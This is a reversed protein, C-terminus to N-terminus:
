RLVCAARNGCVVAPRRSAHGEDSISEAVERVRHLLVHHLVRHSQMLHLLNLRLLKLVEPPHLLGLRNHLLAVLVFHRMREDLLLLLHRSSPELIELLRDLLWGSLKDLLLVSPVIFSWDDLLVCSMLLRRLSHLLLANQRLQTLLLELLLLKLELLKLKLLLRTIGLLVNLWVILMQRLLLRVLPLHRNSSRLLIWALTHSVDSMQRWSLGVTRSWHLCLCLCLCMRLPDRLPHHLLLIKLLLFLLLLQLHLHLRLLLLLM